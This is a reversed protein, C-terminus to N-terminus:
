RGRDARDTWGRRFGARSALQRRRRHHVPDRPRRKCLAANGREPRAVEDVGESAGTAVNVTSVHTPGYWMDAVTGGAVYVITRSDPSWAPREDESPNTTIAKPTEGAVPAILFINSDRNTDPETTRNSVFAITKGDPSWAPQEDDYPGSTIQVSTKKEADFVYLHSRLERLYGETDRKFQIRKTVMPKPTKEDDKKDEGDPADPDPDSAVLVLRKSDPSWAFSSVGGKMDTLRSAEGGGRSLLFVQSKDGERSSLFAIWKGDPSFRPNTEAKPSTTLRVAEGGATPILYIDTDSKDKKLEMSRVTYAVQAGDPSLVPAGVSKLALFDDVTLPRPDAALSFSALLFPAPAFRFSVPRM